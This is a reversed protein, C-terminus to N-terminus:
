AAPTEEAPTEEAPAEEAPTEEAPTEEVPLAEEVPADAEAGDVQAPVETETAEVADNPNEVVGNEEVPNGQVQANDQSDMMECNPKHNSQECKDFHLSIFFM